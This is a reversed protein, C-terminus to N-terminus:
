LDGSPSGTGPEVDSQPADPEVDSGPPEVGLDGPEMGDAVTLTVEEGQDRHAPCYATYTGAALDATVTQTEGPPISAVSAMTGEIEFGHEADSANTVNFHTTGATLASPVDISTGTLTVDVSDQQSVDVAAIAESDSLNGSLLDPQQTFAAVAFIMVFAAVSYLANRLVPRLISPNRPGLM